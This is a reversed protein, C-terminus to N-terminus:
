QPKDAKQWWCRFKTSRFVRGDAFVCDYTTSTGKGDKRQYEGASFSVLANGKGKQEAAVQFVLKAVYPAVDAPLAIVTSNSTQTTTESM